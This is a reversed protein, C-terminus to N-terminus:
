PAERNECLRWGGRDSSIDAEIAIVLQGNLDAERWFRFNVRSWM